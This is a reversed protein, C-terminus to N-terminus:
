GRRLECLILRELQASAEPDDSREAALHVSKLAGEFDGEQYRALSQALFGDESLPNGQVMRDAASRLLRWDRIMVAVESLLRWAEHDYNETSRKTLGMLLDRAQVPQRNQILLFAHLRHLDSRGSYIPSKSLREATVLAQAFGGVEVQLRLLDELVGPDGPRLLAAAEFMELAKRSQGELLELHGLAQYIGGQDPSWPDSAELVSRAESPRKLEVLTEALALRYSTNQREAELASEYSSRAEEQRGMQELIIGRAYDIEGSPELGYGTDVAELARDLRGLEVLIQAHLLHSNAVEPELAISAEIARQAGRLDGLMFQRSAEDFQTGAQIRDLGTQVESRHDGTYDGQAKCGCLAVVAVISIVQLRPAAM